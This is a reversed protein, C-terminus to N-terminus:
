ELRTGVPLAAEIQERMVAGDRVIRVISEESCDVITSPRGWAQVPADVILNVREGIQARVEAATHCEDHGSLNASTGTLVGVEACLHRLAADDPMRVAVTSGGAAARSVFSPKKKVVMALAGPWFTSALTRAANNFEGITEAQEITAVFLPLAQRPDREKIAFVTEVAGGDIALACLGYITDTPLAVVGGSRLIEAAEGYEAEVDVSVQDM